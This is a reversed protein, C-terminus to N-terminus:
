RYKFIVTLPTPTYKRYIQRHVMTIPQDRSLIKLFEGVPLTGIKHRAFLYDDFESM